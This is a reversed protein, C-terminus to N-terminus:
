MCMRYKKDNLANPRKLYVLRHMAVPKVDCAYLARPGTPPRGGIIHQFIDYQDLMEDIIDSSDYGTDQYFVVCMLNGFDDVYNDDLAPFEKGTYSTVNFNKNLTDYEEKSYRFEFYFSYRNYFDCNKENSEIKNWAEMDEIKVLSLLLKDGDKDEKVAFFLNNTLVTDDNKLNPHFESAPFESVKCGGEVKIINDMPFDKYTPMGEHRKLLGKKFEKDFTSPMPYIVRKLNDHEDFPNFDTLVTTCKTKKAVNGNNDAAKRKVTTTSM